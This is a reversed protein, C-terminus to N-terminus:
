RMSCANSHRVATIQEKPYVRMAMSYCASEVEEAALWNLNGEDYAHFPVTFYDPYVVNPAEANIQNFYKELVARESRLQRARKTWPINKEEATGILVKRAGLKMLDFVPKTNIMLNVLVSIPGGGAWRPHDEKTTAVMSYPKSLVPKTLINQFAETCCAMWAVIVVVVVTCFM